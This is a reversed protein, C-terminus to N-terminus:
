NKSVTIDIGIYFEHPAYTKIRHVKMQDLTADVTNAIRELQECRNSIRSEEIIDYYHIIGRDSIHQVALPFFKLASFPLNMIIHDPIMKHFNLIRTTDIADENLVTIIDDVKNERTNERALEVAIPNIDIGLIRYPKAYRAILISFPGIGCFMDFVFSDKQILTSVRKRESALRPSFYTNKVDVNFWLGYEKHRTMTQKKGAIVSVSRTRYDGSVPSMLCITKVHAHTKLLADGISESYSQLEQPLRLLLIDGIIDFSTPLLTYLESPIDLLEQYSRPKKKIKQFFSSVLEFEDLLDHNQNVPIFLVDQNRKIKLDTRLLGKEKLFVRISEGKKKTIKVALCQETCM